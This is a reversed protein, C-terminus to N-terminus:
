TRTTVKDLWSLMFSRLWNSGPKLLVHLQFLYRGLVFYWVCFLYKSKKISRLKLPALLSKKTM